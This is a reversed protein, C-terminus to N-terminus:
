SLIQSTLNRLRKVCSTFAVQTVAYSLLVNDPITLAYSFYIHQEGAKVNVNSNGQFRTLALGSKTGCSQVIYRYTILSGLSFQNEVSRAAAYRSM